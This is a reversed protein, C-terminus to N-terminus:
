NVGAKLYSWGAEQKLILEAVGSPVINAIPLLESKDIHYKRMSNECALFQVNKKSMEIVENALHTKAAVLLGLAKGHIVVEVELNGPWIKQLNKINGITSSWASTDATNLQIVVKHKVETNQANLGTCLFSAVLSLIIFRMMKKMSIIEIFKLFIDIV